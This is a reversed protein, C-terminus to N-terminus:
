IILQYGWKMIVSNGWLDMYWDRTIVLSYIIAVGWGFCFTQAEDGVYDDCYTLQNM